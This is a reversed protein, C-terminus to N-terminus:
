TNHEGSCATRTCHSTPTTPRDDNCRWVGYEACRQLRKCAALETIGGGSRREHFWECSSPVPNAPCRQLQHFSTGALVPLLSQSLVLGPDDAVRASEMERRDARRRQAAQDIQHVPFPGWPAMADPTVPRPWGPMTAALRPASGSLM